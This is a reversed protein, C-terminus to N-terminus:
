HDDLGEKYGLVKGTNAEVSMAFSKREVSLVGMRLQLEAKVQWIGNELMVQSFRHKALKDRYKSKLWERSFEEAEEAGTINM